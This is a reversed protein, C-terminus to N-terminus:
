GTELESEDTDGSSAAVIRLKNASPWAWVVGALPSVVSAEVTGLPVSGFM